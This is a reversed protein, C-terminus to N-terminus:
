WRILGLKDLARKEIEYRSITQLLNENHLHEVVSGPEYVIFYGDDLVKKAWQMDEQAIIKEDFCHKKWVKKNIMSSGNNFLPSRHQIIRENGYIHLFNRYEVPNTLRHPIQRSYVGACKKDKFHKWMNFLYNKDTPFCHSSLICIYNSHTQRIGHNLARGYTFPEPCQTIICHNEEAIGQTNDNSHSDVIIVETKLTQRKLIKLLHQLNDAENKTRIVISIM